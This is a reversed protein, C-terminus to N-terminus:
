FIYIELHHFHLSNNISLQDDINLIFQWKLLFQEIHLHFLVVPFVDVLVFIHKLIIIYKQDRLYWIDDVLTYNVIRDLVIFNLLFNLLIFAVLIFLHSIIQFSLINHSITTIESDTIFLQVHFRRGNFTPLTPEIM